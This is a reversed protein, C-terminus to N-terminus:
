EQAAKYNALAQRILRVTKEEKRSLRGRGLTVDYNGEKAAEVLRELEGPLGKNGNFFTFMSM